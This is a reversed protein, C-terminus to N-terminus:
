AEVITFQNGQCVVIPLALSHPVIWSAHVQQAVQEASWQM